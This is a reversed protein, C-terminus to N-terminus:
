IDCGTPIPYKIDNKAFLVIQMPCLFNQEKIKPNQNVESELDPEEQDIKAQKASQANRKRTKDTNNLYNDAQQPSGPNTFQYM